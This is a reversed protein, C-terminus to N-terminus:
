QEHRLLDYPQVNFQVYGALLNLSFNGSIILFLFSKKELPAQSVWFAGFYICFASKGSHIPLSQNTSKHIITHLLHSITALVGWLYCGSDDDNERDSLM